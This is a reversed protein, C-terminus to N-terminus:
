VSRFGTMKSVPITHTKIKEDLSYNSDKVTAIGNNVSLIIGTHGTDKYPMVFVMGPEPEKITKDMKAMKDKYSDGLGIGTLKNVFAGCQGGKSGDQKLSVKEIIAKNTDGGVDNFGESEFFEKIQTDNYKGTSKLNDYYTQYDPNAKILDQVTNYSMPKLAPLTSENNSPTEEGGAFKWGNVKMYNELRSNINNTFNSIASQNFETTAKINPLQNGLRDFESENLQKGTSFYVFLNNLAFMKQLLDIAEPSTKNQLVPVYKGEQIVWGKIANTGVKNLADSVDNALDQLTLGQSLFTAQTDTLKAPSEDDAYVVQGKIAKVPSQVNEISIENGNADKVIKLLRNSAPDNRYLTTLKSSAEGEYVKDWTGTSDNYQLLVNDIVKTTPESESPKAPATYLVKGTAKDYLTEGPSLQATTDSVSTQNAKQLAIQTQLQDNQASLAKFYNNIQDQKQKYQAEELKQLSEQYSQMNSLMGKQYESQAQSILQQKKDEIEQINSQLVSDQTALAQGAATGSIGGGKALTRRLAGSTRGAIDETRQISQKAASEIQAKTNALQDALFKDTQEKISLGINTTSTPTITTEPALVSPNVDTWYANGNVDTAQYKGQNLANQQTNLLDTKITDLSPQGSSLVKNQADALDGTPSLNPLTNPNVYPKIIKVGIDGSGPKLPDQWGTIAGQKFLEQIQPTQFNVNNANNYYIVDEPKLQELQPPSSYYTAM